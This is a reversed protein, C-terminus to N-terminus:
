SAPRGPTGTTRRCGNRAVLAATHRSASSRSEWRSRSQQLLLERFSSRADVSGHHRRRIGSRWTTDSEPSPLCGPVLSSAALSLSTNRLNQRGCTIRAKDAASTRKGITPADPLWRGHVVIRVGVPPDQKRVPSRRYSGSLSLIRHLLARIDPGGARRDDLVSLALRDPRSGGAGKIAVDIGSVSLRVDRGLCREM